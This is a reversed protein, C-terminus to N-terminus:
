KGLKSSWETEVSPACEMRDWYREQSGPPLTPMVADPLPASQSSKAKVRSSAVEGGLSFYAVTLMVLASAKEAAAINEVSSTHLSRSNARKAREIAKERARESKEERKERERAKGFKFVFGDRHCM